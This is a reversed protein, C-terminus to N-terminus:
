ITCKFTALRQSYTMTQLCKKKLCHSKGARDFNPFFVHWTAKWQLRVVNRQKMEGNKESQVYASYSHTGGCSHNMIVYFVNTVVCLHINFKFRPSPSFLFLCAESSWINGWVHFWLLKKLGTKNGTTNGNQYICNLSSRYCM